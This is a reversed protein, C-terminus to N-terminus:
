RRGGLANRLSLLGMAEKVCHRFYPDRWSDPIEWWIAALEALYRFPRTYAPYANQASTRWMSLLHMRFLELYETKRHNEPLWRLLHKRSEYEFRGARSQGKIITNSGHVRRMAVPEDIKGAVLRGVCAMKLWLCTDEAMALSEPFGGTKELLSKRFVIGDTCFYGVRGKLLALFLCEPPAAERVTTLLQGKRADDWWAKSDADEFVTGVADYVGDLSPDQTLIEIVHDFRNSLYYDDADLFSILPFRAERMGLNRSAAAGRNKGKPHTILRVQPHALSLDQSIRLSGDTSGDEVLVVEGTQPQALASEVAKAVYAEAEYVPIVVSVLM